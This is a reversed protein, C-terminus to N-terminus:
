QYFHMTTWKKSLLLTTDQLFQPLLQLSHGELSHRSRREDDVYCPRSITKSTGAGTWPLCVM